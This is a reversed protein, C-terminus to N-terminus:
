NSSTFECRMRWKTGYRYLLIPIVAMVVSVGGLVSFGWGYGYRDALPDCVLPLFTGMLCRVVILATMGSASYQGLADVVYATVPLYCLLMFCGLLGSVFLLVALSLRAQATWGYAVVTLPMAIAGLIVLPLRYEARDVGKNKERLRVYIRDLFLNCILVSVVSGASFAIFCTGTLAPSLGYVDYLIDPLTTSLIYFYTYDIGGFLSLVQLVGSGALVRFPRVISVWFGAEDKDDDVDYITRINKRGSEHTLKAARRRLIVVSYTERFCCLFVVECALAFAAAMWLVQRWGLSDAIAGAIAPGAAGGILPALMVYSLAAGRQEEPFVDGVIAPNLVNSAVAVGTLCRAAIFLKVSNSCAAMVTFLIFLVTAVNLVRRRGFLESLPGIFLPGAAEGLEWITVLLVSSQKDVYKPDGSLDKVIRSAIPM